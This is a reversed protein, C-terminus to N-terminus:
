SHYDCSQDTQGNKPAQRRVNSRGTFQVRHRLQRTEHKDAQMPSQQEKDQQQASCLSLAPVFSAVVLIMEQLNVSRRLECVRYFRARFIYYEV